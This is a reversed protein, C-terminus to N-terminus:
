LIIYDLITKPNKPYCVMYHGNKNYERWILFIPLKHSIFERGIVASLKLRVGQEGEHGGCQCPTRRIRPVPVTATAPVPVPVPVPDPPSEPLPVSAKKAMTPATMRRTSAAARCAIRQTGTRCLAHSAHM